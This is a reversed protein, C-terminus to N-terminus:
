LWSVSDVAVSDSFSPLNGCIMVDNLQKFMHFNGKTLADALNSLGPIWRLIRIEQAGFSDRIRTVTPRLRYDKSDHLTTITDFLGKSYVNLEFHLPSPSDPFLLNISATLAYGRDAGSVAALIESGISSFSVRSQKSSSWDICHFLSQSSSCKFEVGAVYGSQGYANSHSADSLALLHCSQLDAPFPLYKCIPKLMLLQRVLRNALILHKVRVTGLQQQLHSAVFCAPPLIGHGYFNLTGALSQYQFREETTATSEAEKRRNPSIPIKTIKSIYDVMDVEVAFFEPDQVVHLANFMFPENCIFRGVKFRNSLNANFEQMAPVTGTLLLDDVVKALILLIRGDKSRLLFLQPLGDIRTFSQDSLWEEIALQWLRGSEVLGYAPRTLRWLTHKSSWGPPPRVNIDRQLPGAQLYAGSIDLSSLRLKLTVAISLVLRIVCFQATASDTRLGDKERDRNGHPVM